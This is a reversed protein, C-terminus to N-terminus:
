LGLTRIIGRSSTNDTLSTCDTRSNGPSRRPTNSLANTVVLDPKGDHNLDGVVVSEPYSGLAYLDIKNGCPLGCSEVRSEFTGNPNGHFIQLTSNSQNVVAMDLIGDSSFDALAVSQATAGSTLYDARNFVYSQAFATSCALVVLFFVTTIKM